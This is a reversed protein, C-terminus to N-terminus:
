RNEKASTVEGLLDDLATYDQTTRGTAGFPPHRPWVSASAREAEVGRQYGFLYTMVFTVALFVFPSLSLLATLM